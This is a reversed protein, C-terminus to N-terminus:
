DVSDYGFTKIPYRCNTYDYISLPLNGIFVNPFSLAKVRAGQPLPCPSPYIGDLM